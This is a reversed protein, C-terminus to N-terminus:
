RPHNITIPLATAIGTTDLVSVKILESKITDKAKVPKKKKKAKAATALAHKKKKHHKTPKKHKKPKKTLGGAAKEVSKSVSIGGPNVSVSASPAPTTLTVVLAGNAIADTFAVGSGLSLDAALKSANWTFGKPLGISIAKLYGANAGAAVNFKLTVKNNHLGSLAAASATPLGLASVSRPLLVGDINAVTQGATITLAQAGFETLTGGLFQGAYFTGNDAVGGLFEVYWTGAPVDAMTYTGNPQTTTTEVENDQGDVLDVTMGGLAAGGQGSSVSGTITAGAGLTANLGTGVQGATLAVPGATAFSSGGYWTGALNMSPIDAFQLKYTGPLLQMTYIGDSQTTAFGANDYLGDYASMSAGSIPGSPGSVGGSITAVAPVSINVPVSAGAAVALQTANNESYSLGSSGLWTDYLSFNTGNADFRLQYTGAPLGSITYTTSGTPVGTVSWGERGFNPDPVAGTNVPSAYLQEGGSSESAYNADSLTGTITAGAHLAVPNPTVTTGDPVTVLGAAQINDTGNDGYYDPEVNDGTSDHYDSFYIKYQGPAVDTFTYNATTASTDTPAVDDIYGGAESYLVIDLDSQPLGNGAPVSLSGTITGPTAASASGAGLAMLGLSTAAAIALTSAKLRGFRRSRHETRTPPSMHHQM